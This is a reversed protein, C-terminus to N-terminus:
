HLSREVTRAARKREQFRRAKERNGCSRMDCWQRTRNKSTDLFLWNCDRAGCLRVTPLREADTLLEAASRSAPWLVRDLADSADEWGWAYSSGSPVLRAHPLDRALEENLRALAAAEPRGGCAVTTFVDAIAARLDRARALVAEAEAPRRWAEALLRGAQQESLTGEQRAWAVLDAYGRLHEVGDWGLTNALDLCLEGGSLDFAHEQGQTPGM